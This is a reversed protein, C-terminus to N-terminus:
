PRVEGEVAAANEKMQYRDCAGALFLNIEPQSAAWRIALHVLPRGNVFLWAIQIRIRKEHIM